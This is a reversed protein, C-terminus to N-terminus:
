AAGRSIWGKARVALLGIGLGLNVMYLIRIPWHLRFFEALAAKRAEDRLSFAQAQLSAAHPHLVFIIVAAILAMSGFVMLELATVPYAPPAAWWRWATGVAYLAAAVLVLRNYGEFAKTLFLGGLDQGGFTNFVAPIVSGVLVLLGGVWTALATLEVTACIVM